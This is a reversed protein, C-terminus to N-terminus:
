SLVDTFSGVRSLYEPQAWIKPASRSGVKGTKGRAGFSHLTNIGYAMLAKDNKAVIQPAQEQLEKLIFSLDDADLSSLLKSLAEKEYHQISSKVPELDSFANEALAVPDIGGLDLGELTEKFSSDAMRQSLVSMKDGLPKLNQGAQDCGTLLFSLILIFCPYRYTGRFLNALHM